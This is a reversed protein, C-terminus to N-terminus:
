RAAVEARIEAAGDAAETIEVTETTEEVEETAITSAEEVIAIAEEM